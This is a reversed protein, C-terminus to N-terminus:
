EVFPVSRPNHRPGNAQLKNGLAQKSRSEARNCELTGKFGAVCCSPSIAINFSHLLGHFTAARIVTDLTTATAGNDAQSLSGVNGILCVRRVSSYPSRRGCPATARMPVIRRRCGSAAASAKEGVSGKS